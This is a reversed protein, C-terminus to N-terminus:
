EAGPPAPARAAARRDVLVAGILVAQGTMALLTRVIHWSWWRDRLVTWTQPLTEATWTMVAANIPQNILRTVAGGAIIFVLAAVYLWAATRRRRSLFALIAMLVAGTLALMPLLVNLGRVANQHMEVFAAPSLGTPDYGHWIGFTAGAVLGVLMLAVFQVVVRGLGGVM